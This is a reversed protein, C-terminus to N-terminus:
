TIPAALAAAAEPGLGTLITALTAPDPAPGDLQLLECLWAHSILM